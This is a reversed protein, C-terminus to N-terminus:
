AIELLKRAIIMLEELSPFYFCKGDARLVWVRRVRSIKM